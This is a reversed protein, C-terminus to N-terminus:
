PRIPISAPGSDCHSTLARASAPRGTIQTCVRCMFTSRSSTAPSSNIVGLVEATATQQELAEDREALAEDLRRQLEANACWLNAVEAELTATM